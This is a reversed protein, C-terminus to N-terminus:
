DDWEEWGDRKPTRSTLGNASVSQGPSKVAKEEDWDDDWVEDWGDATDGDAASEPMSMELEQYRVDNTRTRKSFWCCACVGAAVLSVSLMLYAGYMPTM